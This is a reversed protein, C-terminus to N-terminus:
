MHQMKLYLKSWKPDRKRFLSIVNICLLYFLICLGYFIYLNMDWYKLSWIARNKFPFIMLNWVNNPAFSKSGSANGRLWINGLGPHLELLFFWLIFPIILLKYEM